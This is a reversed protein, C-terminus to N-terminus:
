SVPERQFLLAEWPKVTPNAGVVQTGREGASQVPVRCTARLRDPRLSRHLSQMQMAVGPALICRVDRALSVAHAVREFPL